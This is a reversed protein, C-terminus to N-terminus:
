PEYETLETGKEFQIADFFVTADQNALIEVGVSHWPPLGPMLKGKESFRQWKTSLTFEKYGFTPQPVRWGFGIFRVKVNDRDARMHASLVFPTERKLKPSCAGYFRKAGEDKVSIWLSAKGEYPNEADLGYGTQSGARGPVPGAATSLYYDPWGPLGAEEFGPNRLLNRKGPRGTDPLGPAGYVSDVKDPYAQTEVSIEVQGNLAVDSDFAYARTGLFEIHDSFGGDQVDYENSDFLRKVKGGHQLLSIRYTVDVPYYKSNAALLVYGGAPNHRLSVQVDPYKDNEPDFTGPKYKIVQPIDPTVAIPGILRMQECLAEHTDRTQQTKFPWRFYTIAKAGHIIALYTQAFQEKPMIARKRIGSWYEGMPVSWTVQRREDARKKTLYTIKSVYNVNGRSGREGPTWYPDTGLCDMWDVYQDGPPITSSYVVFSPHYGDVEQVRRYFRRGLVLALSSAPEDYLCYGILRPSNRALNLADTFRSENKEYYEGTLRIKVEDSLKKVAPHSSHSLGYSFKKV